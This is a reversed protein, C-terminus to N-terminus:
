RKVLRKCILKWVHRRMVFLMFIFVGQLSNCVDCLMNFMKIILNEESMFWTLMELSWTVGMVILLRVNLMLRNEDDVNFRSSRERVFSTEQHLQRMKIMTMLYLILNAIIITGLPVYLFIL